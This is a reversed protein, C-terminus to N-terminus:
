PVIGTQLTVVEAALPVEIKVLALARHKSACPATSVGPAALSKSRREEALHPYDRQCLAAGLRQDGCCRSTVGSGSFHCSVTSGGGSCPSTNIHRARVWVGPSCRTPGPTPRSQPHGRTPLDADGPSRHTHDGSKAGSRGNITM